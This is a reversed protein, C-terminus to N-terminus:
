DVLQSAPEAKTAQVLRMKTMQQTPKEQQRVALEVEVPLTPASLLIQMRELQGPLESLSRLLLGENPQAVLAPASRL